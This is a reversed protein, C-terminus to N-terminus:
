RDLAFTGKELAGHLRELEKRGSVDATISYHDDESPSFVRTSLYEKAFVDSQFLLFAVLIM